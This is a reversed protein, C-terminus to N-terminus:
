GSPDVKKRSVFRGTALTPEQVQDGSRFDARQLALRTLAVPDSAVLSQGMPPSFPSPDCGRGWGSALSTTLTLGATIQLHPQAPEFYPLHGEDEAGQHVLCPHEQCCGSSGEPPSGRNPESGKPLSLLLLAIRRVGKKWKLVHPCPPVAKQSPIRPFRNKRKRQSSPKPKKKAM